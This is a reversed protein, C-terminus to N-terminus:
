STLRELASRAAWYGCMGHVGGGPPTASSCIFLRENPTAYPDYRLVPRAVFQALDNSGGGIDGGVMNANLVEHEVATIAHRERVLDRFGPAFREIQREIRETMDVASGNPVHCYAWGTHKGEPARTPDFLSQQAFLVYPREPHRGAVVEAESEAIEAMTGGIHLTAARACAEDRWPVPGDLSYDIKFAGPGYRYDALKRVYEAPLEEGAIAVIQRPTLDFLVAQSDPVDRMSAVRAGTRIEGGHHALCEALANPIAQSGGRAVPWGAEHAALLLALGFSASAPADLRLQSHAACGALLAKARETKFVANALGECSRLASLGFRGMLFPHHPIRMAKLIEPFLEESQEVFPCVLGRYADADRGLGEATEDVLTSLVAAPEADLPHALAVPSELWEVGWRELDIEAFFPSLAGMPHIASCIDHAFGPETLELTRAGGGITENAELVCVSLGARAIEVAASLGNPGAGVVVADFARGSM